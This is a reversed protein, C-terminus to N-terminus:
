EPTKGKIKPDFCYGFGLTLYGEKEVTVEKGDKDIEKVLIKDWHPGLKSEDIVGKDNEFDKTWDFLNFNDVKELYEM